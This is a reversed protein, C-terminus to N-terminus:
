SGAPRGHPPRQKIAQIDQPRFLWARGYKVGVDLNRALRAVSSEDLGLQDAVQRATKLNPKRM